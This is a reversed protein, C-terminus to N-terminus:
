LGLIEAVADSDGELLEETDGEEEKDADVDTDGETM